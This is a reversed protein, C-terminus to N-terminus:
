LIKSRLKQGTLYLADCLQSEAFSPFHLSYYQMDELAAKDAKYITLVLQVTAGEALMM